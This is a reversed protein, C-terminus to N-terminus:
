QALNAPNVLLEAEIAQHVNMEAEKELCCAIAGYCSGQHGLANLLVGMKLPVAQTFVLARSLTLLVIIDEAVAPMMAFAQKYGVIIGAIGPAAVIMGIVNIAIMGMRRFFQRGVTNHM